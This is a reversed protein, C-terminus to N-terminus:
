GAIPGEHLISFVNTNISVLIRKTTLSLLNLQFTVVNKGQPVFPFMQARTVLLNAEPTAPDLPEVTNCSEGKSERERKRRGGERVTKQSEKERHASGVSAPEPQRRPM